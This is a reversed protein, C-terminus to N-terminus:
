CIALLPSEIVGKLYSLFEAAKAGDIARHDVSINLTLINAVKVQDAIVVPKKVIAGVALICSQPPNIIASFEQIGYMGLNSISFGGGQFEELKLRGERARSALDKVEKSIELVSKADANRVIPTILGDPISVAVSIDVNDYYIISDGLWSCNIFNKERIAKATLRIILDNISIKVDQKNKALSTNIVERIKVLEDANCELKLYFHPVEQKSEQLRQAIIQRMQSAEVVKGTGSPIAQSKPRSTTITNSALQSNEVDKKVIRGHPGSGKINAIDIGMESAVRRALPSAFVRGNDHMKSTATNHAKTASASQSASQVEEKKGSTVQYNAIIGADEGKKLILGICKGVAVNKSGPNVLIKGLTGSDASEVEMMAKDTEIEAIVDGSKIIDGEKKLWNALTGDKMTPSLAPM